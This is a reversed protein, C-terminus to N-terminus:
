GEPLTGTHPLLKLFQLHTFEYLWSHKWNQGHNFGARDKILFHTKKQGKQNEINNRIKARKKIAQNETESQTLHEM